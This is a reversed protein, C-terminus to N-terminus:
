KRAREIVIQKLQDASVSLSRTGSPLENAQLVYAIVDVYTGPSLSGPKDKPMSRRVADYLEAVTRENWQTMFADLVLAPVEDVQNGSLDARHCAECHRAYQTEGRTAQQDTYVGDWVSRRTTAEPAQPQGIAISTVCVLIVTGLVAVSLVPRRIESRVRPQEHGFSM